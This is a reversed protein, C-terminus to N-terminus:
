PAALCTRGGHPMLRRQVRWRCLKSQDAPITLEQRLLDVPRAQRREGVDVHVNPHAYLREAPMNLGLTM